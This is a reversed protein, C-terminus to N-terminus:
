FDSPSTKNWNKNKINSETSFRWIISYSDDPTTASLLGTPSDKLDSGSENRSVSKRSMVLVTKPWFFSHTCVWFAASFNRTRVRYERGHTADYRCIWIRVTDSRQWIIKHIDSYKLQTYRLSLTKHSCANQIEISNFSRWAGLTYLISTGTSVFLCYVVVIRNDDQSLTM